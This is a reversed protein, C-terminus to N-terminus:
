FYNIKKLRQEKFWEYTYVGNVECWKDIYLQYRESHQYNETLFSSLFLHRKYGEYECINKFGVYMEEGTKLDYIPHQIMPEVFEQFDYLNLHPNYRNFSDLYIRMEGKKDNYSQMVSCEDIIKNIDVEKEDKFLHIDNVSCIHKMCQKQDEPNVNGYGKFNFNWHRASHCGECLCEIDKLIIYIQKGIHDIYLEYVEHAHLCHPVVTKVDEELENCCLEGCLNCKWNNLFKIGMSLDNFYSENAYRINFFYLLPTQGSRKIINRNSVCTYDKLSSMFEDGKM